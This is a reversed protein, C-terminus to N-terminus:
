RDRTLTLECPFTPLNGFYILLNTHIIDLNVAVKNIRSDKEWFHPFDLEPSFVCFSRAAVLFRTLILNHILQGFSLHKVKDPRFYWDAALGLETELFDRGRSGLTYVKTTNGAKVSPLSFRYLYQGRKDDEGGCFINLIERVHTLSKASFFLHAVDIATIYRYFYVARPIEEMRKTLIVHKQKISQKRPSKVEINVNIM